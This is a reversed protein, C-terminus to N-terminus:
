VNYKEKLKLYLQYPTIMSDQKGYLVETLFETCLYMSSSQWLNKKPLFPLYARLWLYFMGGFDYSKHSGVLQLASHLLERNYPIEVSHVIDSHQLFDQIVDIRCGTFNSHIVFGANQIAVHSVDEKTVNRIIKSAIYNSKTFIIKM